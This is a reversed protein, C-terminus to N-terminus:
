NTVQPNRLFTTLVVHRRAGNREWVVFVAVRLGTLVGNADNDAPLAAINWYRTFGAASAQATPVGLWGRDSAELESEQHDYITNDLTGTDFSNSGVWPDNYTADNGTNPNGLRADNAYDWSQIQTILDEALATARTTRRANATMDLGFKHLSLLGISGVLLLALAIM